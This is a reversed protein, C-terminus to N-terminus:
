KILICVNVTVSFGHSVGIRLVGVRFRFNREVMEHKKVHFLSPTKRGVGRFGWGSFLRGIFDSHRNGVNEMVNAVGVPIAVSQELVNQRVSFRVTVFGERRISGHRYGPIGVDKLLELDSPSVGFQEGKRNFFEADDFFASRFRRIRSPLDFVVARSKRDFDDVFDGGEDFIVFAKVTQRFPIGSIMGESLRLFRFAGHQFSDRYDPGPCRSHHEGRSQHFRSKRGLGNRKEVPIGAHSFLNGNGPASTAVNRGSDTRFFLKEGFVNASGSKKFAGKSRKRGFFRRFPEAFASTRKFDLVVQPDEGNGIRTGVDDGNEFPHESTDIQPKGGLDFSQFSYPPLIPLGFKEDRVSSSFATEARNGDRRSSGSIGFGSAVARSM